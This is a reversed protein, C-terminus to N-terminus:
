HVRTSGPATQARDGSGSAAEPAIQSVVRRARALQDLQEDTLGELKPILPDGDKGTIETRESWGYAKGQTKAVFCAAGLNDQDLLRSLTLVARGLLREKAGDLEVFYHKYLTPESVKIIEAIRGHPVGAMAMGEVHDRHLQTPVHEKGQGERPKRSSLPERTRRVRKM